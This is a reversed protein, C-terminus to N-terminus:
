LRNVERAVRQKEKFEKPSDKTYKKFARSFYNPDKYGVLYCVEKISQDTEILLQKARDMRLDTVYQIFTVGFMERFLKSFYFTSLGVQEAVEELTIPHQYHSQIYERVKVLMKQSHNVRLMVMVQDIYHLYEKGYHFIDMTNITQKAEYRKDIQIGLEQLTHRLIVMLDEVRKAVAKISLEGQQLDEIYLQLLLVAEHLHGDKVQHILNKEKELLEATDYQRKQEVKGYQYPKAGNEQVQKLSILADNYSETFGVEEYFPSGVGVFLGNKTMFERDYQVIMQRIIEIIAVKTQQENEQKSFSINLIPVQGQILPGLFFDREVKTQIYTKLWRYEVKGVKQSMTHAFSCVMMIGKDIPKGILLSWEAFSIDLVHDMISSAIWEKQSRRMVHEYQTQLQLQKMQVEKEVSLEDELRKCTAIVEKKSAPKLLYEKVGDRLAERAFEFTDYATLMVFKTHRLQDQMVKIAEFGNMGPMKIDMFVIDPKFENAIEIAVQGNYAENNVFASPIEKKIIMALVKREIAEDDVIMVKM